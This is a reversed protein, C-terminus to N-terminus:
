LVLIGLNFSSFILTILEETFEEEIVPLVVHELGLENVGLHGGEGEEEQLGKESECSHKSLAQVKEKSQDKSEVSKNAEVGEELGGVVSEEVEHM